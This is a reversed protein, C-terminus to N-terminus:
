FDRPGGEDEQDTQDGNGVRLDPPFFPRVSLPPSFIGAAMKIEQSSEIDGSKVQQKEKKTSLELPSDEQTKRGPPSSEFFPTLLRSTKTIKQFKRGGRTEWTDRILSLPSPIEARDIPDRHSKKTQAHGGVRGRRLPNSSPSNRNGRSQHFDSPSGGKISVREPTREDTRRELGRSEVLAPLLRAAAFNESLGEIPSNARVWSFRGSVGASVLHAVGPASFLFPETRKGASSRLLGRWDPTARDNIILLMGGVVSGSGLQPHGSQRTRKQRYKMRQQRRTRNIMTMRM